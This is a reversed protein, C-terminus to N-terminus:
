GKSASWPGGGHGAVTYTGSMSGASVTGSYTIGPGGVTGFRIASGNLTGNIPWRSHPNSITITGHLHTGSQSWHLVFTGGYAGSYQGSWKGTLGTAAAASAKTTAPSSSHKHTGGTGPTSSGSSSSCAALVMALGAALTMGLVLRRPRRTLSGNM